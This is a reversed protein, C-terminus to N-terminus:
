TVMPRDAHPRPKSATSTEFLAAAGTLLGISLLFSGLDDLPTHWLAGVVALATLLTWILGLLLIGVRTPSGVLPYLALWFALATACVATVSGSPFTVEGIYTRQVLPKAIYENVIFATTAVAAYVAIRLVARRAIGLAAATVGAAAVVPTSVLESLHAWGATVSPAGLWRFFPDEFGYPGNGHAVALALLVFACLCTASTISLTSRSFPLSKPARSV